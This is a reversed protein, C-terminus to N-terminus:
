CNPPPSFITSSVKDHKSKNESVILSSTKKSFNFFNFDYFKLDAKIQKMEKHVQEEESMSYFMSTNAKKEILSVITPTSLFAIFILLVIKVAFKMKCFYVTVTGFLVNNIYNLFFKVYM